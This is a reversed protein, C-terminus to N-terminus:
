KSRAFMGETREIMLDLIVPEPQAAGSGWSWAVSGYAAPGWRRALVRWEGHVTVLREGEPDDPDATEGSLSITDGVAPPHELVLGSGGPTKPWLSHSDYPNDPNLIYFCCRAAM